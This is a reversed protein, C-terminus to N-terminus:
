ADGRGGHVGDAMWEGGHMGIETCGEWWADSGGYIRGSMGRGGHMGSVM